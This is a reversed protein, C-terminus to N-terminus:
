VCVGHRTTAPGSILASSATLADLQTLGLLRTQAAGPKFLVPRKGM